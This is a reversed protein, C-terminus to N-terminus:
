LFARVCVCVRVCGVCVRAHACGSATPPGRVESLELRLQGELEEAQQRHEDLVLLQVQLEHARLDAVPLVACPSRSNLM